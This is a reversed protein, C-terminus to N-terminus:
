SYLRHLIVSNPWLILIELDTDFFLQLWILALMQLYFCMHTNADVCDLLFQFARGLIISGEVHTWKRWLFCLNNSTPTKYDLCAM